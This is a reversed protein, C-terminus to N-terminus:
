FFGGFTLCLFRVKQPANMYKKFIGLYFDVSLSFCDASISDFIIEKRECDNLLQHIKSCVSEIVSGKLPAKPLILVATLIFGGFKMKEGVQKGKPM